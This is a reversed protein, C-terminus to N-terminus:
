ENNIRWKNMTTGEVFTNWGDIVNQEGGLHNCITKLNNNILESYIGSGFHVKQALFYGIKAVDYERDPKLSTIDNTQIKDYYNFHNGMHLWEEGYHTWGYKFNASRVGMKSGNDYFALIGLRGDKFNDDTLQDWARRSTLKYASEFNPEPTLHPFNPLPVKNLERLNVIISDDFTYTKNPKTFYSCYDYGGDIFENIYDIMHKMGTIFMDNDIHVMVDWDRNKLINKYGLMCEDVWMNAHDSPIIEINSNSVSFEGFHPDPNLYTDQILWKYGAETIMKVTEEFFLSRRYHCTVFIVKDKNIM